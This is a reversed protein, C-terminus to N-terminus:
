SVAVMDEKTNVAEIYKRLVSYAITEINAHAQKYCDWKELKNIDEEFADGVSIEYERRGWEEYKIINDLEKVFKDFYMDKYWKKCLELTRDYVHVNNFINFMEVKKGNIDYNLVYFEFKPYEKLKYKSKRKKTNMINNWREIIENELKTWDDSSNSEKNFERGRLILGCSCVIEFHSDGQHKDKVVIKMDNRGCICKHLKTNM